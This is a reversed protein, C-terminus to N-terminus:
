RGPAGDAFVEEQLARALGEAVLAHGRKTLHGFDVGSRDLFLADYGERALAERFPAENDVLVVGPGDPLLIRYPDVTRLPYGLVVLRGPNRMVRPVLEAFSAVLVPSAVVEERLARAEDARGRADLYRALEQRADNPDGHRLDWALSPCAPLDAELAGRLAAEAEADRGARLLVRGFDLRGEACPMDALGRRLVAEAEDLRGQELLLRGRERWAVGAGWRQRAEDFLRHAEEGRGREGLFRALVVTSTLDPILGLQLWLVAEADAPRDQLLLFWVLMRYGRHDLPFAEVVARFLREQEEATPQTQALECMVAASPGAQQRVELVERARETQGLARLGRAWAVVAEPDGGQAREALLDLQHDLERERQRSLRAQHIQYSVMSFLRVIKLDALAVGDRSPGLRTVMELDDNIGTMVTVVDPKWREVLADLHHLLVRSDTGPLAANVVQVRSPFGGAELLRGAQQPYADDGGFSTMSDGLALLTVAAEGGDAVPGPSRVTLPTETALYLLGVGRLVGELLLLVALGAGVWRAVRVAPSPRPGRPEAGAPRPSSPFAPPSDSMGRPYLQGTAGPCTEM